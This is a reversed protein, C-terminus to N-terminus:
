GIRAFAADLSRQTQPGFVGDATGQLFGKEILLSQAAAIRTEAGFSAVPGDILGRLNADDSLGVATAYWILATVPDRPVGQGAEYLRALDRAAWPVGNRAAGEFLSAAREYDPPLQEGSILLRGADRAAWPNKEGAIEFLEIARAHDKEVGRGEALLRALEREAGFVKMSLARELFAAARGPDDFLPHKAAYLKGLRFFAEGDGERAATTFLRHAAEVNKDVGQGAEYMIGLRTVANPVGRGAATEYWEKAKAFDKEIGDGTQYMRALRTQATLEGSKAARTYWEVAKTPDREVGKGNQYLEGINTMAWDNGADAGRQYWTMANAYSQEVGVGARFVWALATFAATEGKDAAYSFLEYAKAYDQPVAQADLYMQGLNVVAALYDAEVAREQWLLAEDYRGAARYARALQAWYRPVDPHRDVAVECSVIAADFNRNLIFQRTGATVKKTDQPMGALMDCAHVFAEVAIGRQNVEGADKLVQLDLEELGGNSGVQPQYFLRQGTAHWFVSNGPVATEGASIRGLRPANAVFVWAGEGADVDIQQRGTGIPVSVDSAAIRTLLEMQLEEQSVVDVTQEAADDAFLPDPQDDVIGLARVKQRADEAFAGDPSTRLYAQYGDARDAESVVRWFARDVVRRPPLAGLTDTGRTMGTTSARLNEVPPRFYFESELTSTLWTIQLGGTAERVDGRVRRFMQGIELGPAELARALAETYPSHRGAGDYAVAGPATAFSILTENEGASMEALGGPAAESLRAIGDRVGEETGGIRIARAAIVEEQADSVEGFPNDRCADLLVVSLKAGSNAMVDVIAQADVSQAVLEEVSSPNVSVPLLYNRAGIRVGHGAYFFVAESGERLRSRFTALQSLMTERDADISEIVEFGAEWLREAILEADNRPNALPAVSNYASNGIVLAVRPASSEQAYTPGTFAVVLTVIVGRFIRLSGHVSTQLTSM